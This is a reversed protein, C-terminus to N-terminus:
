VLLYFWCVLFFAFLCCCAPLFALLCAIGFLFCCCCFVTDLILAAREHAIPWVCAHACAPLTVLSLPSPVALGRTGAWGVRVTAHVLWFLFLVFCCFLLLARFWPWFCCWALSRSLSLTHTHTHAYAHTHSQTLRFCVCMCVCRGGEWRKSCDVVQSCRCCHYCHVLLAVQNWGLTQLPCVSFPRSLRCFRGWMRVFLVLVVGFSFVALALAWVLCGPQHVRIQETVTRSITAENGERKM